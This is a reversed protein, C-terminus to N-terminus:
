WYPEWTRCIRTLCETYFYDGFATCEDVGKGDPKSYVGHLLIGTSLPSQRTTYSQSLSAAIHLAAHKFPEKDADGEDLAVSLELLGCVAIAAASSDREEAGESFILDWYAVLDEPLRNLFYRSLGRATERLAPDKLYRYSLANGYIGWAQGRAWCSDDAYGQATNGRLPRGTDTDFFYTHYASWNERIICANATTIHRIAAERYRPVGTEASAWYLLPLNM